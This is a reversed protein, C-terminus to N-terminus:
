KTMTYELFLTQTINEGDVRLTLPLFNSVSPLAKRNDLRLYIVLEKGPKLTTYGTVTAEEIGPDLFVLSKEMAATHPLHVEIDSMTGTRYSGLHQARGPLSLCSIITSDDELYQYDQIEIRRELAADVSYVSKTTQQRSDSVANSARSSGYAVERLQLSGGGADKSMYRLLEGNNWEMIQNIITAVRRKSLTFNYQSNHLPSAYGEITLRIRRGNKLDQGLLDLFREFKQCNGQVGNDFFRDIARSISDAEPGSYQAYQARKYDSRRFMYTNYTQFYNLKTHPSESKPDPRDNDFYLAIPLMPRILESRKDISINRKAVPKPEPEVPESTWRYIDNCCTNGYTYGSGNRNSAMYGAFPDDYDQNYYIDNAPSNISEGLNVPKKWSDRNGESYFIDFGGYGYHWDSSFYLRGENISYYPTIENGVTNVPYGLNVCPSPELKDNLITYWIDMGGISGPRDSAFFLIISSDSLLGVAPQTSTYGKLNVDGGLPKPKSFRKHDNWTMYYITSQVNAFNDNATGRTFFVISHVPDIAVNGSHEKKSNIGWKNLEALGPKGDGSLECQFTQMIVMDDSLENSNTGNVSTIASFLLTPKKLFNFRLAGSESAATNVNKSEQRLWYHQKEKANGDLLWQCSRMEQRARQYKDGEPPVSTIYAEYHVLASDYQGTCRLMRALQYQCDPFKRAEKSQLITYYLQVAGMYDNGALSAEAMKYVLQMDNPAVVAAQTYYDYATKYLGAAMAADGECVPCNSQATAATSLAALLFISLIRRM